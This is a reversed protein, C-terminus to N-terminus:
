EWEPASKPGRIHSVMWEVLGNCRDCGECGEGTGGSVSRHTVAVRIHLEWSWVGAVFGFSLVDFTM